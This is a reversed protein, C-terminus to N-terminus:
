GPVSGAQETGVTSGRDIQCSAEDEEQLKYGEECECKRGGETNVCIHECGGGDEECENKDLCTPVLGLQHRTKNFTYGTSCTCIVRGFYTSCQQECLGYKDSCPDDSSPICRGVILTYSPCCSDRYCDVWHNGQRCRARNRIVDTSPCTVVEQRSAPLFSELMQDKVYDVAQDIKSVNNIVIDKELFYGAVEPNSFVSSTQHLTFITLLVLINCVAARM